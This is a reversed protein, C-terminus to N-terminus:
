YSLQMSNANEPEIGVVKCDPELQDFGTALGAALGGGGVCTFCYDFSEGDPLVQQNIIEM